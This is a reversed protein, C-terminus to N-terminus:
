RWGVNRKRINTAAIFQIRPVAPSVAGDLTITMSELSNTSTTVSTPPKDSAFTHGDKNERWSVIVPPLRGAKLEAQWKKVAKKADAAADKSSKQNAKIWITAMNELVETGKTSLYMGVATLLARKMIDYFEAGSPSGARNIFTADQETSLLFIRLQSADSAKATDELSGVAAQAAQAKQAPRITVDSRVTITSLPRARPPM